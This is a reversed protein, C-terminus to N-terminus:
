RCCNFKNGLTQLILRVLTITLPLPCKFIVSKVSSSQVLNSVTNAEATDVCNSNTSVRPTRDHARRRTAPCAVREELIVQTRITQKQEPALSPRGSAPPKENSPSSRPRSLQSDFSGCRICASSFHFLDNWRRRCGTFDTPRGFTVRAFRDIIVSEPWALALLRFKTENSTFTTYRPLRIELIRRGVGQFRVPDSFASRLPTLFM